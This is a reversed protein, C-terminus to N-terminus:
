RFHGYRHKLEQLKKGFADQMELFENREKLRKNELKLKEVESLEAENKKSGKGRRDQLGNRGEKEYKKVWSYAQSYSINYKEQAGKYDYDRSIIFETIEIREEFTTKRGKTMITGVKGPSVDGLTNSSNYSNIWGKLVSDSSIEYKKIVSYLSMENVVVDKVANAKLEASYQKWGKAKELGAMGDQNYKRVWDSIRGRAIGYKKATFNVSANGELVHRIIKWKEDASRRKHKRM